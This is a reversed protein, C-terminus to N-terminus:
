LTIVDEFFKPNLCHPGFIISCAGSQGERQAHRCINQETTPALLALSRFCGTRAATCSALMGGLSFGLLGLRARDVFAQRQAWETIRLADALQGTVLMQDFSGDSEG